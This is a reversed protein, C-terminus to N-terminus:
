RVKLASVVIYSNIMGIKYKKNLVKISEYFTKDKNNIIDIESGGNEIIYQTFINNIRVKKISLILLLLCLFIIVMILFYM